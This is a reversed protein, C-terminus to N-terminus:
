GAAGRASEPYDVRGHAVAALVQSIARGVSHLDKLTLDCENLQGDLYVRDIIAGVAEDVERPSPRDLSRVAAESADALMIIAAERSKPKPGPYRFMEESAKRDRIMPGAKDLFCYLKSTGHHQSIIESIRDGLRYEEAIRVGEKVHSLIVARSLGPSLADHVNSVGAQNESFYQPKGLKGVDHYLAAVRCLVPNAGIALAGAEALTGVVVSHHFTGPTEVMLRSLLPHGTGSLEMLRIDSAYGFVFEAVPMVALSIPGSLLGNLAGFLGAWMVGDGGHFAFELAAAALACVPATQVGALLMRYRDPVRRARAAGATGCLLLFLMVSWRGSAAAASLVSAAVTFLISTESNILVRVVMAFAPLPILYAYVRAPVDRGVSPSEALLDIVAKAAFFLLLALSCLFLFDRAALRVKRVDRGAFGFWETLFLAVALTLAVAGVFPFMGGWRGAARPLLERGWLYFLVAFVAASGLCLALLRGYRELGTGAAKRDGSGPKANKSVNM